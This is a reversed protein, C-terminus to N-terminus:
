TQAFTGSHPTQTIHAYLIVMLAVFPVLFSMWLCRNFTRVNVKNKLPWILRMVYVYVRLNTEVSYVWTVKGLKGFGACSM